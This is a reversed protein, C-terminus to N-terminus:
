GECLGFEDVPEASMQPAARAERGEQVARPRREM